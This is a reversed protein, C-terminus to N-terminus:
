AGVAAVLGRWYDPFLAVLPPMLPFRIRVVRAPLAWEGGTEVRLPWRGPPRGGLSAGRGHISSGLRPNGVYGGLVNTAGHAPSRGITGPLRAVHRVRSM